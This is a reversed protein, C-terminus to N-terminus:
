DLNNLFEPAGKEYRYGKDQDLLQCPNDLWGNEPPQKICQNGDKSGFCLPGVKKGKEYPDSNKGDIRCFTGPSSCNKM